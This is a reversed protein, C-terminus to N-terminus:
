VLLDAFVKGTKIPGDFSNERGWLEAEGTHGSKPTVTYVKTCVGRKFPSPYVRPRNKQLNFGRRLAPTKPKRKPTKRPRKILQNQDLNLRCCM